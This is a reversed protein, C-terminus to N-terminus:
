PCSLEATTGTEDYSAADTGSTGSIRRLSEGTIAPACEGSWIGAEEATMLRSSTRGSGWCVYDRITDPNTFSAVRYLALEGGDDGQDFFAPPMPYEHVAGAEITVGPEIMELQIYNPRQCLVWGTGMLEVADPGPNFITVTNMPDVAAILLSESACHLEGVDAGVDAMMADDMRADPSADMPGADVGADMMPEDDGCGVALAALVVSMRLSM